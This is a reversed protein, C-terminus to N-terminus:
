QMVFLLSAISVFLELHCTVIESPLNNIFGVFLTPGIVSGQIVESRVPRSSSITGNHTICQSSNRFFDAILLLLSGDINLNKFKNLLVPLEVKDFARFIDRM